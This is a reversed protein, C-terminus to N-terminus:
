QFKKLVSIRRDARNTLYGVRARRSRERDLSLHASEDTLNNIFAAFELSESRLGLRFNVLHYAALEPSVSVRSPRIGFKFFSSPPVTGFGTV